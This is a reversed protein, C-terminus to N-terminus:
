LRVSIYAMGRLESLWRRTYKIIDRQFIREHLTKRLESFPKVSNKGLTKVLKKYEARLESESIQLRPKVTVNITRIRLIQMALEQRYRAITYGQAQLAHALQTDNIKNSKKLQAVALDIDKTSAKIHLRRAVDLILSDNILDNLARKALQKEPVKRQGLAAKMRKLRHEFDRLLIIDNNVVAVVRDVLIPKAPATEKAYSVGVQGSCLFGALLLTRIRM